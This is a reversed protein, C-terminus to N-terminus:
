YYFFYDFEILADARKVAEVQDYIFAQHKQFDFNPANGSCVILVKM